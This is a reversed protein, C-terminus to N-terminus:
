RHWGWPGSGPTGCGSGPLAAGSACDGTGGPYVGLMAFHVGQWDWSYHLNNASMSYNPAVAALVDAPLAARQRNRMIVGRRVLGGRDAPATSNGGDHNGVGEFVPFACTSTDTGAGVGAGAGAGAVARHPAPSVAFLSSYNAWQSVCGPDSASPALSSCGDDILDGPLVVGLPAGVFGSQNGPYATGPLANMDAVGRRNKQVDAVGGSQTFHTDPSVFFTFASSSTLKGEVAAFAVVFFHLMKMASLLAGGLRAKRM